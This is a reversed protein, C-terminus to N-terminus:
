PELGTLGAPRRRTREVVSCLEEYKAELSRYALRLGLRELTKNNGILWSLESLPDALRPTEVMLIKEPRIGSIELFGPLARSLIRTALGFGVALVLNDQADLGFSVVEGVPPLQGSFQTSERIRQVGPYKGVPLLGKHVAAAVTAGLSSGSSYYIVANKFQKSTTCVPVKCMDAIRDYTSAVANALYPAAKRTGYAVVTRGVRIMRLRRSMYGGIVMLVNVYALADTTVFSCSDIGLHRSASEFLRKVVTSYRDRGLVYVSNGASDVGVLRLAGLEADDQIDFYPLAMVETLTVKEPRTVHGLHIAAAMVSSHAGGYCHYIVNM